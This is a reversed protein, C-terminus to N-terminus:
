NLESILKIMDNEVSNIVPMIMERDAIYSEPMEFSGYVMVSKNDTALLQLPTVASSPSKVVIGEFRNTKIETVQSKNGGVNMEIRQMRNAMYAALDIKDVSQLTLHLVSGSYMGYVVDVWISNKEKKKIVIDAHSNVLMNAIDEAAEVASYVTDALQIRPYAVPRPVPVSSKRGCGIFVSFCILVVFINIFNKM